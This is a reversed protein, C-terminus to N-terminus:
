RSELASAVQELTLAAVRAVAPRRGRPQEEDTPPPAPPLDPPDSGGSITRSPTRCAGSRARPRGAGRNRAPPRSRRTPRRDLRGTTPAPLDPVGDGIHWTAPRRAPEPRPLTRAARRLEEFDDGLQEAADGAFRLVIEDRAWRAARTVGAPDVPMADRLQELGETLDALDLTGFVPRPLDQLAVSM